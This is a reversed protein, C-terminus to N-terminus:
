FSVAPAAQAGETATFYIRPKFAQGTIKNIVLGRIKLLESNYERAARNYEERARLIRNETGELQITLDHFAANAKLDPYAEQVVLLRSLAGSLEGQAKQFTAIREPDTLDEETLKVQTASARAEIVKTLTDQEHKASGKVVAVLNPVLDARRQLAADLDAWKEAANQDAEVLANYRGCGSAGLLLSSLFVLSLVAGLIAGLLRLGRIVVLAPPCPDAIEPEARGTMNAVTHM